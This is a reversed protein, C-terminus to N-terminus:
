EFVAMTWNVWRECTSIWREKALFGLFGQMKGWFDSVFCVGFNLGVVSCVARWVSKWYVERVFQTSYNRVANKSAIMWWFMLSSLQEASAVRPRQLNNIWVQFIKMPTHCLRLLHQRTIPLTARVKMYLLFGPKRRFTQPSTKQWVVLKTADGVRFTRTAESRCHM